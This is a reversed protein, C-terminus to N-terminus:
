ILFEVNIKKASDTQKTKLGPISSINESNVFKQLLGRSSLFTLGLSIIFFLSLLQNIPQNILKKILGIIDIDM